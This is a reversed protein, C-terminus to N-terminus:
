KQRSVTDGDTILTADDSDSNIDNSYNLNSILKAMEEMSEALPVRFNGSAKFRSGEMGRKLFLFETVNGKGPYSLRFIKEKKHSNDKFSIAFHKEPDLVDDSIPVPSGRSGQKVSEVMPGVGPRGSSSPGASSDLDGLKKSGVRTIFVGAGEVNMEANEMSLNDDAVAIMDRNKDGLDVSLWCKHVLSRERKKLLVVLPRLRGVNVLELPCDFTCDAVMTSCLDKFHGYKVYGFCVTPLVEYEVRQVAGDFLVQSILPKELNLFVPLRIWALVMSPYLQSPSFDKTWPQVTLYQGFIIWPGRNSFNITSVGNIISTQVDDARLDFDGNSANDKRLPRDEVSHPDGDDGNVAPSLSSPIEKSM